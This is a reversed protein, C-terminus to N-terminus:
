GVHSHALQSSVERQQVVPDLRSNGRQLRCVDEVGSPRLVALRPRQGSPALLASLQDPERRSLGNEYEPTDCATDCRRERPTEAPLQARGLHGNLGPQDVHVRRGDRDEAGQALVPPPAQRELEDAIIGEHEAVDLALVAVGLVGRSCERAVLGPATFREAGVRQRYDPQVVQPVRV